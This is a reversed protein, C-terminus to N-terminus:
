SEIRKMIFTRTPLYFINASSMPSSNIFYFSHYLEMIALFSSNQWFHKEETQKTILQYLQM